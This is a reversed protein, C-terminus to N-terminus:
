HLTGPGQPGGHREAKGSRAAAHALAEDTAYLTLGGRLALAVGEDATCDIVDHEEGRVLSFLAHLKGSVVDLVVEAPAGGGARLQQLVLETLTHVDGEADRLQRARVADLPVVILEGDASRLEAGGRGCRQCVRLRTLELRKV